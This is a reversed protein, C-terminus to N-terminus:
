EASERGHFDEVASHFAEAGVRRLPKRLDDDPTGAIPSASTAEFSTGITEAVPEVAHARGHARLDRGTEAAGDELEAAVICHDNRGGGIQVHCHARDQEGRDARCPLAASRKAAEDDM